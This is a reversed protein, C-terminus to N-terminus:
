EKIYGNEKLKEVIKSFKVSGDIRNYTDKEIGNKIFITTPTGSIPYNAILESHEKESLKSIDIYKVDVGYKKIVRNLTVKYTSCASCTESGIFLVFDEKDNIMKNMEKYSIEDYTGLSNCGSLLLIIFLFFIKKVKIVMIM